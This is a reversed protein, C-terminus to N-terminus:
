QRQTQLFKRVNMNHEKLTRAFIHGGKGDAVFYYYDSEAPRATAMISAKGPNAIPGPPLGKHVYTNYPHNERLHNRKIDGDYNQAGYIVTPDAQLKMGKKLRNIFVSAVMSREDDISTEKEVISALVLLEEPDKLPLDEARGEWAELLVEDMNRMMQQILKHRKEGHFYTYTSPFLRGEGITPLDGEMGSIALLQDRIQASTVGEPFTVTHIVVEGGALKNVARRLSIQPEFMYQGAKLYRHLGTGWAWLRFLGPNEIVEEDALTAAIQPVSSGPPIIIAKHEALEGPKGAMYAIVGVLAALAFSAVIGVVLLKSFLRSSFM